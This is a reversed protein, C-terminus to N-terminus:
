GDSGEPLTEGEAFDDEGEEPRNRFEVLSKRYALRDQNHLAQSASIPVEEIV